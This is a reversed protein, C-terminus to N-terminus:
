SREEKYKRKYFSDMYMYIPCSKYGNPHACFIYVFDRRAIIDPFNLTAGECYVKYIGDKNKGKEQYYYPCQCYQTEKAKDEEVRRDKTEQKWKNKAM